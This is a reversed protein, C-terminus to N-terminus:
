EVDVGTLTDMGGARWRRRLRARVGVDLGAPRKQGGRQFAVVRGEEPVLFRVIADHEGYSARSVVIGVRERGPDRM